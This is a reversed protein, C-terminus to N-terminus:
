EEKEKSPLVITLCTYSGKESALKLEMDHRLAIQRAIAFGLDSGSKNKENPVKYFREFVHVIDVESIGCGYDTVTINNGALKTWMDARKRFKISNQMFILMVQRLRGYDCQLLYVETDLDVNVGIGKEMGLQRGSRAADHIVDCINLTEKEIPFDTNQLRLLDLLDNIM